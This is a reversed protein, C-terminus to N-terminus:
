SLQSITYGNRVNMVNFGGKNMKITHGTPIFRTIPTFIGIWLFWLFKGSQVIKLMEWLVAADRGKQVESEPGRQKSMKSQSMKAGDTTWWRWCYDSEPM